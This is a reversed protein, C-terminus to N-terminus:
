HKSIYKAKTGNGGFKGLRDPNSKVKEVNVISQLAKLNMTNWFDFGLFYFPKDESLNAFDHLETDPHFQFLTGQTIPTPTRNINIEVETPLFDSIIFINRTIFSHYFFDDKHPLLRKKPPLKWICMRGFISSKHKPSLIRVSRCFELTKPFAPNFENGELTQVIMNEVDFYNLNRNIFKMYAQEFIQHEVSKPWYYENAEDAEIEKLIIKAQEKLNDTIFKM